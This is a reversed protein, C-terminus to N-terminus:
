NRRLHMTHDGEENSMEPKLNVFMVRLLMIIVMNKHTISKPDRAICACHLYEKIYYIMKTNNFKNIYVLPLLITFM